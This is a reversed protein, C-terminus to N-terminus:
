IEIFYTLFINNSHNNFSIEWWTGDWQRGAMRKKVKGRGM